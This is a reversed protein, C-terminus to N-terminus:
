DIVVRSMVGEQHFNLVENSKNFLAKDIIIVNDLKNIRVNEKLTALNNPNPEVATVLGSKVTLVSVITTFTGVNAGPDVITDGKKNLDM